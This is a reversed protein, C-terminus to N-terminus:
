DHIRFAKGPLVHQAPELIFDNKWDPEKLTKM